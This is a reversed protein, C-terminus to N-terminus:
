DPGFDEQSCFGGSRGRTTEELGDSGPCFPDQQPEKAPMTGFKALHHSIQAHTDAGQLPPNCIFAGIEALVGATSSRATFNSSDARTRAPRRASRKRASGCVDRRGPDDLACRAAIWATSTDRRDIRDRLPRRRLARPRRAGRWRKRAAASATADPRRPRQAMRGRGVTARTCLPAVVHADGASAAPYKSGSISANRVPCAGPDRVKGTRDSEFTNFRLLRGHQDVFPGVGATARDIVESAPTALPLDEVEVRLRRGARTLDAAWRAGADIAEVIEDPWEGPPIQAQAPDQQIASAALARLLDRLAGPDTRPTARLERLVAM